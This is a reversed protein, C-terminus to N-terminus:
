HCYIERRDCLTKMMMMLSHSLTKMMLSDEDSLSHSLPDEDDDSLTLSLTKM